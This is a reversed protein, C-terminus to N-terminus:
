NEQRSREFTQNILPGYKHKLKRFSSSVISRVRTSSIGYNGGISSYTSPNGTLGFRASMIERHKPKLAPKEGRISQLWSQIESTPPEPLCEAVLAAKLLALKFNKQRDRGEQHTLFDVFEESAERSVDGSSGYHRFQKGNGYIRYVLAEARSLPREVKMTGPKSWSGPKDVPSDLMQSIMKLDHERDIPKSVEFESNM